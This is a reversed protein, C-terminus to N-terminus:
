FCGLQCPSVKIELTEAINGIDLMSLDHKEAIHWLDLCAVKRDAACKEVAATAHEQPSDLTKVVKYGPMGKKPAFGFLGLQCRTIRIEIGNAEEGVQAPEVRVREAVLHAASCSLQGDEGLSSRIESRVSEDNKSM